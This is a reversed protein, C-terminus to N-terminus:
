SITETMPPQCALARWHRVLGRDIWPRITEMTWAPLALVDEIDYAVLTLGMDAWPTGLAPSNQYMIFMRGAAFHITPYQGYGADVTVPETWTRTNDHSVSFVLNARPGYLSARSHFDPETGPDAANWALVTAGTTPERVAYCNAIPSVFGTPTPRGWTEGGDRSVAQWLEGYVTRMVMWLWGSPLEVVAPEGFGEPAPPLPDAPSFLKSCHWTDGLDDSYTSGIAQSGPGEQGLFYDSVLVIRGRNHGARIMIASFCNAAGLGEYVLEGANDIRRREWHAGSDFSRWLGKGGQDIVIEVGPIVSTVGRNCPPHYGGIEHWQEGGTTSEIVLDARTSNGGRITFNMRVADPDDAPVFRHMAHINYGEFQAFFTDRYKDRIDFRLLEALGTTHKRAM